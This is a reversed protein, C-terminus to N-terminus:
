LTLDTVALLKCQVTREKLCCVLQDRIAEERYSGFECTEALKLLRALFDRISELEQQEAKHFKVHKAIVISKPDLHKALNDM